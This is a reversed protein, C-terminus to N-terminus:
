YGPWRKYIGNIRGIAVDITRNWYYEQSGIKFTGILRESELIPILEKHGKYVSLARLAFWRRDSCKSNKYIDVFLSIDDVKKFSKLVDILLTTEDEPGEKLFQRYECIYKKDKIQDLCSCIFELFTSYDKDCNRNCYENRVKRFLDILYPNADKNKGNTMSFVIMISTGVNDFQGVYKKLIPFLLKTQELNTYQLQFFYQIEVGNKKCEEILKDKMLKDHETANDNGKKARELQSTYVVRLKFQELSEGEKREISLHKITLGM